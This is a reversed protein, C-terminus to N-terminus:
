ADSAEFCIRLNGGGNEKLQVQIMKTEPRHPDNVRKPGGVVAASSAESSSITINTIGRYLHIM